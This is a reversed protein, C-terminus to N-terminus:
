TQIEQKHTTTQRDKTVFRLNSACEGSFTKGEGKRTRGTAARGAVMGAWSEGFPDHGKGVDRATRTQCGSPEAWM